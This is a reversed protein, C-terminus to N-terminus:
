FSGGCRLLAHLNKPLFKYRSACSISNDQRNQIEIKWEKLCESFSARLFVLGLFRLFGDGNGGM